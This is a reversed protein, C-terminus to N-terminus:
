RNRSHRMQSSGNHHSGRKEMRNMQGDGKRMRARSDFEIRQEDTLLSRVEQECTLRIKRIQVRLVSIEDVKKDIANQDAKDAIRLKSLEAEKIDIDAILVQSQSRAGLQIKEISESQADTLDSICNMSMPGREFREPRDSNNKYQQAMVTSAGFVVLMM